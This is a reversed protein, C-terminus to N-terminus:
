CLLQTHVFPVCLQFSTGFVEGVVGPTIGFNTGFGVGILSLFMIFVSQLAESPQEPASPATVSMIGLALFCFATFLYVAGLVTMRGIRHRKQFYDTAFGTVLAAVYLPM